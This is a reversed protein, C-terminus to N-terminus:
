NYNALRVTLPLGRNKDRDMQSQIRGLWKRFNKDWQSEDNLFNRTIREANAKAKESIEKASAGEMEGYLACREQEEFHKFMAPFVKTYLHPNM